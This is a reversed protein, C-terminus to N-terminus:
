NDESIERFSFALLEEALIVLRDIARVIQGTVLPQPTEEVYPAPGCNGGPLGTVLASVRMPKRRVRSVVTGAVVSMWRTMSLPEDWTAFFVFAQSAARGRKWIWWVGL